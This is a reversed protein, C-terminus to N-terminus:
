INLDFDRGISKFNSYCTGSSTVSSCCTMRNVGGLPSDENISGRDRHPNRKALFRRPFSPSFNEAHCRCRSSSIPISRRHYGRPVIPENRHGIPVTSGDNPDLIKIPLAFLSPRAKIIRVRTCSSVADYFWRSYGCPSFLLLNTTLSWWSIRPGIKCPKLRAGFIGVWALM